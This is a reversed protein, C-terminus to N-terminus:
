AHMIGLPPTTRWRGRTFDPVDVPRSRRATSRASLEIVASLAAADYVNMDTPLGQRLTGILRYDELFDMGGHGAGASREGMEKWLPHEFEKVADPGAM